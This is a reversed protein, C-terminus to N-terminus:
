IPAARTAAAAHIRELPQEPAASIVTYQASILTTGARRSQGRAMTWGGSVSASRALM